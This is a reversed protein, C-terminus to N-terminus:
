FESSLFYILEIKGLRYFASSALLFGIPSYDSWGIVNRARYRARYQLGREVKKYVFSLIMTDVIDGYLSTFPGGRGNDIELSYSM